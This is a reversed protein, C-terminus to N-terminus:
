IANHLRPRRFSVGLHRHFERCLNSQQLQANRGHVRPGDNGPLYDNVETPVETLPTCDVASTALTFSNGDNASNMLGGTNFGVRLLAPVGSSNNGCFYMHGLSPTLYYANDFTGDYINNGAKGMSAVVSSTLDKPAQVVQVNSSGNAAAFVFGTSSDVIPSDLIAGTGVTIKNSLCPLKDSGYRRASSASTRIFYLIGNSGGVFVNLSNASFLM